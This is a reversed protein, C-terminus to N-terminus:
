KKLSKKYELIKEIHHRNHYITIEKLWEPIGGRKEWAEDPIAAVDNVLASHNLNFMQLIHGVPLHNGAEIFFENFMQIDRAYTWDYDHGTRWVSLAKLVEGEWMAIHLLIHSVSWYGIVNKRELEDPKFGQIAELIEQHVQKLEDVFSM